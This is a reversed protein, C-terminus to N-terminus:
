PRRSGPGRLHGRGTSTRGGVAGGSATSAAANYAALLLVIEIGVARAAELAAHAEDLGLYHFEGVATYGAGLLERYTQEYEERVTDPTQRDAEALM